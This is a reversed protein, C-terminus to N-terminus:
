RDYGHSYAASTLQQCTKNVKPDYTFTTPRSANGTDKQGFYFCMVTARDACSIWCTFGVYDRRTLNKFPSKNTFLLSPTKSTSSILIPLLIILFARFM